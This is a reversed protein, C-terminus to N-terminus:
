RYYIITLIFYINFNNYLVVIKKKLMGGTKDISNQPLRMANSLLAVSMPSVVTCNKIFKKTNFSSM